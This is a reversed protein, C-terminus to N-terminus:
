TLMKLFIIAWFWRGSLIRKEKLDHLIWLVQTETSKEFSSTLAKTTELEDQVALQLIKRDNSNEKILGLNAWWVNEKTASLQLHREVFQYPWQLHWVKLRMSQRSTRQLRGEGLQLLQRLRLRPMGAKEELITQWRKWSEHNCLHM